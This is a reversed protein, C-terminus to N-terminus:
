AARRARFGLALLGAALLGLTGPEPVTAVTVLGRLTATASEGELVSFTTQTSFGAGTVTGVELGLTYLTGGVNFTETPLASPFQVIDASAVPEGVVNTTNVLGLLYTFNQSVGAPDTFSLLIALDVSDAQTGGAIAGNFYAVSGVDFPSGTTGSFGVAGNFQLSSPPAGDGWTFVNTGVGTVLMGVPGAPNQFVGSSSGAIPLANAALGFGLFALFVVANGVIARM